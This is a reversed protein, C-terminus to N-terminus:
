RARERAPLAERREVQELAPADHRGSCAFNRGIQRGGPSAMGRQVRGARGDWPPLCYLLHAIPLSLGRSRPNLPRLPYRRALARARSLSLSLSLSLAMSFLSLPPARLSSSFFSLLFVVARERERNSEKWFCECHSTIDSSSGPRSFCRCCDFCRRRCCCCSIRTPESSTSSSSSSFFPSTPAVLAGSSSAGGSSAAFVGAVAAAAAGRGGGGAAGEDCRRAGASPPAPPPPPSAGGGGGGGM